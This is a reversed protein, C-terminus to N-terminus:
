STSQNWHVTEGNRCEMLTSQPVNFRLSAGPGPLKGGVRLLEKAGFGKVLVLDFVTLNNRLICLLLQMCATLLISILILIVHFLITLFYWYWLVVVRSHCWLSIHIILTFVASVIGSIFFLSMWPCVQHPSRLHRTQAWDTHVSCVCDENGMAAARAEARQRKPASGLVSCM